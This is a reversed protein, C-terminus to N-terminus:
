NWLASLPMEDMNLLSQVIQTEDSKGIASLETNYERIWRKVADLMAAEDVAKECTVDSPAAPKLFDVPIAQATAAWGLIMLVSFISKWLSYMSM